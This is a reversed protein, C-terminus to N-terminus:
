EAKAEETEEVNAAEQQALEVGLANIADIAGQNKLIEKEIVDLEKEISQKQAVKNNYESALSDHIQNKEKLIKSLREIDISM